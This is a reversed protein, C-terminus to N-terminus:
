NIQQAVNENQTTTYYLFVTYLAFAIVSIYESTNLQSSLFCLDKIKFISLKGSVALNYLIYVLFHSALLVFIPLTIYMIEEKDRTLKKLKRKSFIFSSGMIIGVLSLVIVPINTVFKSSNIGANAGNAVSFFIVISYVMALMYKENLHKVFPCLKFRTRYIVPMAYMLSVLLFVSYFLINDTKVYMSFFIPYIPYFISPFFLLQKKLMYQSNYKNQYLVMWTLLYVIYAVIANSIITTFEYPHKALSIGFLFPIAVITASTM